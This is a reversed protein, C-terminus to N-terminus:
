RHARRAIVTPVLRASSNGICYPCPILGQQVAESKALMKSNEHKYPCSAGAHYLNSGHSILVGAPLPAAPTPNAHQDTLPRPAPFAVAGAVLLLLLAGIGLYFGLSPTLGGRCLKAEQATCKQRHKM